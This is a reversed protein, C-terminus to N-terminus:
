AYDYVFDNFVIIWPIFPSFPSSASFHILSKLEIKGYILKFVSCNFEDTALVFVSVHFGRASMTIIVAQSCLLIKWHM